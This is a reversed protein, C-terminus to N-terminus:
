DRSARGPREQEVHLLCASAARSPCCRRSKIIKGGRGAAVMHRALAQSLFFVAKQNVDMVDDWDQEPSSWRPARRIIGANNVLIDVGGFGAVAQSVARCTPRRASNRRRDARLAGAAQADEATDATRPPERSSTPAPRALAAAMAQGLGTSAGTVLAAKGGLDFASIPIEDRADM